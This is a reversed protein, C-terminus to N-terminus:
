IRSVEPKGKTLTGKKDFVLVDIKALQEIVEGGKLLAGNRAGNGIGAVLSVPASIVLAGPCAIGLFTLALEVNKTFLYVFSRFLTAYPFLSYKPPPPPSPSSFRAARPGLGCH